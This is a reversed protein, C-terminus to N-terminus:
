KVTPCRRIDLLGIRSPDYSAPISDRAAQNADLLGQRTNPPSPPHPAGHSVSLSAAWAEANAQSIVAFVTNDGPM